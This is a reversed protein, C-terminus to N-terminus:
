TGSDKLGAIRRMANLDKMYSETAPQAAQNAQQQARLSGPVVPRSNRTVSTAAGGANTTTQGGAANKVTGAPSPTAAQKPAMQVAYKKGKWTFDKAGAKRAAGFAQGFPMTDYNPAAAPAPTATQTPTTATGTEPNIGGPMTVNQGQANVGNAAQTNATMAAGMDADDQDAATSAPAAVAPVEPAAPVAPAAPVEPAAPAAVAAPAPQTGAQVPAGSGDVVASGDGAKLTGPVTAAATKAKNAQMRAQQQAMMEQPTPMAKQMNAVMQEPSANPDPLGAKAVLQQAATPAAAPAAAEIIDIYKRLLSDM